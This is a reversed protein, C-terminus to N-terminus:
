WGVWCSKRYWKSRGSFCGNRHHWFRVDTRLSLRWGEGIFFFSLLTGPRSASLRSGPYTLILKSIRYAFKLIIQVAKWSCRFFSLVRSRTSPSIRHFLASRRPNKPNWTALIRCSFEWWSWLSWQLRFNPLRTRISNFIKFILCILLCLWNNSIKTRAMELVLLEISLSWVSPTSECFHSVM